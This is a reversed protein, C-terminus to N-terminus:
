WAGGFPVDHCEEFRTPAGQLMGVAALVREEPRTCGVGMEAAVDAVSRQSKDTPLLPSEPTSTPLPVIEPQLPVHTASVPGPERLRGDNIAKRLTDYKLNLTESVERRSQGSSLSDQAKAIVDATLVTAGRPKRTQYFSEIGGERFKKVNRKVSKATVGFAKVIDVQKCTGQCVLQSTFM